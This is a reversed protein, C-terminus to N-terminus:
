STIKLHALLGCVNWVPSATTLRLLFLFLVTDATLGKAPLLSVDSMHSVKLTGMGRGLCVCMCTTCFFFFFIVVVFLGLLVSPLLSYGLYVCVSCLRCGDGRKGWGGGTWLRTWLWYQGTDRNDGMYSSSASASSGPPHEARSDPRGSMYGGGGGAESTPPPRRTEPEGRLDVVEHHQPLVLHGDSTVPTWLESIICVVWLLNGFLLFPSRSLLGGQKELLAEWLFKMEKGGTRWDGDTIHAHRWLNLTEPNRVTINNTPPLAPMSCRLTKYLSQQTSTEVAHKVSNNTTM